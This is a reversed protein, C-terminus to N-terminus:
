PRSVVGSRDPLAEGVMREPFAGPLTDPWGIMRPPSMPPCPLTDWNRGEAGLPDCNRGEAGLKGDPPDIRGDPPLMPPPRLMWIVGLPPRTPPLMPPARIPPLM